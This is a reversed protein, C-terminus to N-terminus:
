ICYIFQPVTPKSTRRFWQFLIGVQLEWGVGRRVTKEGRGWADGLGAIVPLLTMFFRSWICAVSARKKLFPSIMKRSNAFHPQFVSKQVLGNRAFTPQFGIGAKQRFLGQYPKGSLPVDPNLGFAKDLHMGKRYSKLRM